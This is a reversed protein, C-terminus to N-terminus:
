SSQITEWSSGTWVKLKNINTDYIIEGLTGSTPLTNYNKAVTGLDKPTIKQFRKSDPNGNTATYAYLYNTSYDLSTIIASNPIDNSRGIGTVFIAGSNVNKKTVIGINQILHGDVPKTHQVTGPITVSVYGIDGVNSFLSTDIGKVKGYTVAVGNDKNSLTQNLIGICPMKSPDTADAKDIIVLNENVSGTVCVLTGKNLQNGTENRVNIYNTFGAGGAISFSIIIDDNLSFPSTASFGQILIDLTWWNINNVLDVISFILFDQPNYLKSISIFGKQTDNAVNFLTQLFIDLSNSYKDSNNLYLETSTNQNAQNLRLKGTGPDSSTTSTDFLLNYSLGGFNGHEGPEGKEGPDGPDGKEGPDGPDGKEGSDGPDGKEGPDGPDGKEGPDGPDGGNNALIEKFTSNGIQFDDQLITLRNIIKDM